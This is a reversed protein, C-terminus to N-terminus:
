PGYSVFVNPLRPIGEFGLLVWGIPNWRTELNASPNFFRDLLFQPLFFAASPVPKDWGDLAGCGFGEMFSREPPLYGAAGLLGSIYSNSNYGRSTQNPRLDYNLRDGYGRDLNLLRTIEENEEGKSPLLYGAPHPEADNTRNIDSQLSPNPTFFSNPGAGITLYHKGDKDKNKRLEPGWTPDNLWKEQDEPTIRILAHCSGSLLVEHQQVEIKLGSPDSLNVPDGEVYAYRNWSNPRSLNPSGDFPDPTVFRGM